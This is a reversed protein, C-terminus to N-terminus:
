ARWERAAKDWRGGAGWLERRRIYTAYCAPVCVAGGVVNWVIKYRKATEVLRRGKANTRREPTTESPATEPVLDIPTTSEMPVVRGFRMSLGAVGNEKYRYGNRVFAPHATVTISYPFDAGIDIATVKGVIQQIHTEPGSYPFESALVPSVVTGVETQLDNDTTNRFNAAQIAKLDERTERDLKRKYAAQWKRFGPKDQLLAVLAGGWIMDAAKATGDIEEVKCPKCEGLGDRGHVAYFYKGDEAYVEARKNSRNYGDQITGLHIM